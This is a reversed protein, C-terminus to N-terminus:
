PNLTSTSQTHRTLKAHAKLGEHQQPSQEGNEHRWQRESIVVLDLCGGSVVVVALSPEQQISSRRPSQREAPRVAQRRCDPKYESLSDWSAQEGTFEFSSFSRKSQSAKASISFTAGFFILASLYSDQGAWSSVIRAVDVATNRTAAVMKRDQAEINERTQAVVKGNPVKV